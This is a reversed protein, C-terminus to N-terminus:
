STIRQVIDTVWEPRQQSVKEELDAQRQAFSAKVQGIRQQLAQEQEAKVQKEMDRRAQDIEALLKAKKKQSDEEMAQGIGRAEEIVDCAMRDAQIIQRLELALAKKNEAM